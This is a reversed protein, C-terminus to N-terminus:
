FCRMLFNIISMNSFGIATLASKFRCEFLTNPRATTPILRPKNSLFFRPFFFTTGPAEVLIENTQIRNQENLGM